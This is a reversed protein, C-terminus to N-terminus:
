EDNTPLYLNGTLSGGSALTVVGASFTLGYAGATTPVFWGDTVLGGALSDFTDGNGWTLNAIIVRSAGWLTERRSNQTAAAM